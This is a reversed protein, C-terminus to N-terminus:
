AAPTRATAADRSPRRIREAFALLAPLFFVDALLAAALTLATLAGFHRNVLFGSLAFPLFSLAIVASTVVVAVGVSRFAARMAEELGLTARYRQYRALLHVTDDVVIGYTLAGVVTAAFSIEGELVGWIGFAVAVPLLNPLLSVLGLRVSRLTAVIILSIAGLALAMGSIMSRSSETSLRASLVPMGTVAATGVGFTREAEGQVRDAFALTDRSSVGRMVLAFRVHQGTEDVLRPTGEQAMRDHAAAVAAFDDTGAARAVTALSDLRAVEGQRELWGTLGAIAPLAAPAADPAGLDVVVDVITTGSLKAEFLDTARRVEYREDFYHSFTDDVTIASIGAAAGVTVAALAVLLAVWRRVAFGGVAAMAREFHRRHTGTSRPILVLLAPLLTFVLLLIGVLGVAVINGLDRFPPSEATNLVLFSVMTTLVSLLIPKTNRAFAVAVAETRDVGGRLADQWAIAIHVATAVALGMLVAPAASSLGNLPIGFWGLAGMTGGVIGLTMVVVAITLTISGFALLLLALLIALQANAYTNVDDRSEALFADDIVVRGTQLFEFGPHEAAVADRVNRHAEAFEVVRANDGTDPLIAAVAAVSGDPALVAAVSGGASAAQRLRSALVTREAASARAVAEAELGLAFLPSRVAAVEPRAESAEAMAAIAALGKASFVTGERPVVLTVVEQTRGFRAEVADFAQREPRSEDFYVLVDPDYVVRDAGIFGAVIIGLWLLVIPVRAAHIARAFRAAAPSADPSATM